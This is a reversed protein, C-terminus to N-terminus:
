FWYCLVDFTEIHERFGSFFDSILRQNFFFNTSFFYKGNHNSDGILEM